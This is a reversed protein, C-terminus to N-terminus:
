PLTFSALLQLHSWKGTLDTTQAKLTYTGAAANAALNFVGAYTGDTATGSVRTGTVSSVMQGSSDYLYVANTSNAGVDDTVRFSLTFSQGRVVPSPALSGSSPDIVPNQTDVTPPATQATVTLSALVELHSYKSANDIVQGKFTYAGVASGFPVNVTASYIGDTVTGSTRAAEVFLVMTSASDYLYVRASSCCSMDDTVRYSVLVPNGSQVSSVSASGSGVVLVPNATDVTPATTQATVTVSGILQLHTYKGTLDTAQAKILYTGPTSGAPIGFVASYTGDTATGSVRSPTVQLVSAGAPNYLWAQHYGCCGQDDTIRYTATVNNGPQTQGPTVVGSNPDIVPNLTDTTGSAGNVAVTALQTEPTVNGAADQARGMISYTGSTSNAPVAIGATVAVSNTGRGSQTVSAEAVRVGTASVLWITLVDCCSVNDAVRSTVVLSGGATVSTPNVSSIAVDFQPPTSDIPTITATPVPTPSQTPKAPPTSGTPTPTPTPAQAKTTVRMSDGFQAGNALVRLVNKGVPLTVFPTWFAGTASSRYHGDATLDSSRLSFSSITRYGAGNTGLQLTYARALRPFNVRMRVKSQGSFEMGLWEKGFSPKVAIAPSPAAVLAFLTILVAIKALM